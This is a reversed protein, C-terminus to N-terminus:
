NFGNWESSAQTDATDGPKPVGVNSPAATISFIALVGPPPLTMSGASSRSGVRTKKSGISMENLSEAIRNDELNELHKKFLNEIDTLGLDSAWSPYSSVAVMEEPEVDVSRKKRNVPILSDSEPQLKAGFDLLLKAIEYMMAAKSATILRAHQNKGLWQIPTIGDKNAMSAKAGQKLLKTVIMIHSSTLDFKFPNVAYHLPTYGFRDRVNSKAGLDLLSLVMDYRGYIAAIHLPTRRHADVLNVDVQPRNLLARFQLVLNTKISAHLLTSSFIRNDFEDIDVTSRNEISGLM